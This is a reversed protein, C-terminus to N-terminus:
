WLASFTASTYLSGELQLARLRLSTKTEPMDTVTLPKPNTYAGKCALLHPPWHKRKWRNETKFTSKHVISVREYATAAAALSMVVSELMCQFTSKHLSVKCCPNRIVDGRRAMSRINGILATRDTVVILHKGMTEWSDSGFEEIRARRLRAGRQFAIDLMERIAIAVIVAPCIKNNGCNLSYPKTVDGGTAWVHGTTRSVVGVGWRDEEPWWGGDGFLIIADEAGLVEDGLQIHPPVKFSPVFDDSEVFDESAEEYTMEQEENEHLMPMIHTGDETEIKMISCVGVTFPQSLVCLTRTLHQVEDSSCLSNAFAM